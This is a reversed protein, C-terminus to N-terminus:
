TSETQLNARPEIRTARKHADLDSEDYIVAHGEKRYAPGTGKSRSKNLYSKSVGLYRAAEPTRLPNTM